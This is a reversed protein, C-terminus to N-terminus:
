TGAASPYTRYYMSSAAYMCFGLAVSGILVYLFLTYAVSCFILLAALVICSIRIVLIHGCVFQFFIHFFKFAVGTCFDSRTLQYLAICSIIGVFVRRFRMLMVLLSVNVSLPFLSVKSCRRTSYPSPVCVHCHTDLLIALINLVDGSFTGLAHIVRGSKWGQGVCRWRDTNLINASNTFELSCFCCIKDACSRISKILRAFRFNYVCRVL